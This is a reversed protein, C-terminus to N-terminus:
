LFKDFTATLTVHEFDLIVLFEVYYMEDLNQVESGRVM